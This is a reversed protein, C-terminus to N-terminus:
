NYVTFSMSRLLDKLKMQLTNREERDESVASYYFRGKYFDDCAKPSDTDRNIFITNASLPLVGRPSDKRFLLKGKEMKRLLDGMHIKKDRFGINVSSFLGGTEYERLHSDIRTNILGMSKRANIEVVPIMTGDRLIMSDICVEGFYGDSYLKEGVKMMMEIYGKEFLRQKFQDDATVAGLYTFRNNYIIQFSVIKIDGNRSINLQCSFDTEKDFFPELLFCVKMGKEAQGAIHQLIKRFIRESNILLNGNGSVGMVDKILFGQGNNFNTKVSVEIDDVSETIIGYNRLGLFEPLFNSYLKSNVKKVTKIPPFDHPVNHRACFSDLGSVVAYTEVTDIIGTNESIVSDSFKHM